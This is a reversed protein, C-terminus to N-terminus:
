YFKESNVLNQNKPWQFYRTTEQFEKLHINPVFEKVQNKTPQNIMLLNQTIESCAKSFVSDLKSM